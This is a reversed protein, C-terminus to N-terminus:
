WLFLSWWASYFPAARALRRHAELLAAAQREGAIDRRARAWLWDLHTRMLQEGPRVRPVGPARILSHAEQQLSPHSGLLIFVAQPPVALGRPASLVETQLDRRLAVPDKPWDETLTPSLEPLRSRGAKRGELLGSALLHLERGLRPVEPKARQADSLVKLLALARSEDRAALAVLAQWPRAVAPAKQSLAELAEELGKDDGKVQCAVARLFGLSLDPAGHREASALAREATPADLLLLAASAELLHLRWLCERYPEALVADGGAAELLSRALLIPPALDDLHLHQLDSRKFRSQLAYIPLWPSRADAAPAPADALFRRLRAEAKEKQGHRHLVAAFLAQETSLHPRREPESGSPLRAELWPLAEPELPGKTLTRLYALRLLPQAPEADDYGEQILRRAEAPRGSLREAEGLIPLRYPSPPASSAGKRLLAAARKPEGLALWILGQAERELRTGPSPLGALCQLQRRITRPNALALAAALGLRCSDMSPAKAAEALAERFLGLRLAPEARESARLGLSPLAALVAPGDRPSFRGSAFGRELLSRMALRAKDRGALARARHLPSLRARDFAREARRHLALAAGASGPMPDRTMTQLVAEGERMSLHALGIGAAAVLAIAVLAGASAWLLRRRRKTM